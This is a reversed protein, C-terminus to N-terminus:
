PIRVPNPHRARVLPAPMNSMSRQNRNAAAVLVNPNM